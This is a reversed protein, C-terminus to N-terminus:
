RADNVSATFSTPVNFASKTSTSTIVHPLDNLQDSSAGMEQRLEKSRKPTDRVAEYYNFMNSVINTTVAALQELSARDIPSIHGFVFFNASACKLIDSSVDRNVPYM